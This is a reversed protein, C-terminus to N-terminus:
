VYSVLVVSCNLVIKLIRTFGPVICMKNKFLENTKQKLCLHKLTQIELIGIIVMPISLVNGMLHPTFKGVCCRRCHICLSFSKYKAADVPVFPSLLRYQYRSLSLNIAYAHSLFPHEKGSRPSLIFQLEIQTSVRPSM